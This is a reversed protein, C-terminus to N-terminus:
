KAKKDGEEIDLIEKVRGTKGNELEVKIGHVHYESGTLIKKVNGEILEPIYPSEEVMVHSGVKINKLTRWDHDELRKQEIAHKTAKRTTKKKFSIKEKTIKKVGSRKVVTKKATKKIVKASSKKVSKDASTKKKGTTKKAPM